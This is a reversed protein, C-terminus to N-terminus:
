NKNNETNCELEEQTYVSIESDTLFAFSLLLISEVVQQPIMVNKPHVAYIRYKNLLQILPLHKKPLLDQIDKYQGNTTFESVIQGLTANEFQKEYRINDLNKIMKHLRLEVASVAMIVSSYKCNNSYDILSEDLRICEECSLNRIKNQVDDDLSEIAYSIESLCKKFDEYTFVNQQFKLININNSYEDLYYWNSGLFRNCLQYKELLKILVEIMPNTQYCVSDIEDEHQFPCWTENKSILDEMFYEHFSQNKMYHLLTDHKHKSFGDLM